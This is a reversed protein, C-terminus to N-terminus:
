SFYVAVLNRLLRGGEGGLTSTCTMLLLFAAAMGFPAGISHVPAVAVRSVRREGAGGCANNRPLWICFCCLSEGPPTPLLLPKPFRREHCALDQLVLLAVSLATSHDLRHIVQLPPAGRHAHDCEPQASHSTLPSPSSLAVYECLPVESHMQNALNALLSCIHRAGQM